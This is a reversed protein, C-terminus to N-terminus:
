APGGHRARRRIETMADAPFEPLSLLNNPLDGDAETKLYKGTGRRAVVVPVADGVPDEVYLALDGTGIAAIAQEQTLRWHGGDAEVGGVALIRRRPDSRFPKDVWRVRAGRSALRRAEAVIARASPGGIRLAAAITQPETRALVDVSAIGAAALARERQPGIGSVTSTAVAAGGRPAATTRDGAAPPAHPHAEHAPSGSEPASPAPRRGPPTPSWLGGPPAPPLQPPAVDYAVRPGSVTLEGPADAVFTLPITVTSPFRLTLGGVEVLEPEGPPLVFVVAATVAAAPVTSRVVRPDFAGPVLPQVIPPAVPADGVDLWEVELRPPALVEDPVDAELELEFLAGAEVAVRQLLRAEATGDNGLVVGGAGVEISLEDAAGAALSWGEPVGDPGSRGLGGNLLGSSTARLSVQDVVLFAGRAVHLRVEVQTAGEPAVVDLGHVAVDQPRGAKEERPRADDLLREVVVPGETQAPTAACIDVRDTRLLEDGVWLLELAADGLRRRSHRTVVKAEYRCGAAAPVVQSLAARREESGLFAAEPDGHGDPYPEVNGATLVWHEPAEAGRSVEPVDTWSLFTGNSLHELEPCASSAPAERTAVSGLAEGLEPLGLDLELRGLPAFRDLSVLDAPGASTAVAGPVLDIRGPPGVEVRVPMEFAEPVRRLRVFAELPGTAGVATAPRWSLGADLSTQVGPGELASPEAAWEAAGDLCQLVVWYRRGADLRVEAPLPANVWSPRGDPDRSARVNVPQALLPQDWPKGDADSVLTLGLSAGGPAALLLLDVGSIREDVPAEVPHAQSRDAAVGVFLPPSVEGLAGRAVRSPEFSGTVRGLMGGPAVVAGAPLDVSLVAPTGIALSSHDYSFTAEPLGAPLADQTRMYDITCAVDLRCLADSHVTVTVQASGNVVEAARLAEQLVPAFDPTTEESALDGVRTWFPPLAGARVSVNTPVSRVTVANVDTQPGSLRFRSLTLGPLDVASGSLVLEADQPGAITGNDAIKLFVGGADAQLTAREFVGSLARLTRRAHLDVEAFGAGSTVTCGLPGPDGPRVVYTFPEEGGLPTSPTLAVTAATVLADQPLGHLQLTLDGEFPAPGARRAATLRM